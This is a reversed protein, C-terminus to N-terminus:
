CCRSFESHGGCCIGTNACSLANVTQTSGCNYATGCLAADITAYGDSTCPNDCTCNTFDETNCEGATDLHGHVTGTWEPATDTSFSEVSLDDLALKLKNM